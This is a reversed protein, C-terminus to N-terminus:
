PLRPTPRRSSVHGARAGPLDSKVAGSEIHGYRGSLGPGTRGDVPLGAIYGDMTTAKDRVERAATRREDASLTMMATFFPKLGEGQLPDLAALEDELVQPCVPALLAAAASVRRFGNLGWFPTLACIIEPKHNDDRYNRDPADLAKGESNERRFGAQAQQRSPHAQISLPRAAALVKFLYPLQNDFRM